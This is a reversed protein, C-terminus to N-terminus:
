KFEVLSKRASEITEKLKDMKVLTQIKPSPMLGKPGLIKALPKLIGMGEQTAICWDFEILGGELIGKAIEDTGIVEVESEKAIEKGQDNSFVAIRPAKGGHGHPLFCIGRLMENPRGPNMNMSNKINCLSCLHYYWFFARVNEDYDPTPSKELATELAVMASTYESGLKSQSKEIIRM